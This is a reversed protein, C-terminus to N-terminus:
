SLEKEAALAHAGNAHIRGRASAIDRLQAGRAGLRLL